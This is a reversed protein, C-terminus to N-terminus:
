CAEVNKFMRKVYRSCIPGCVVHIALANVFIGCSKDMPKLVVQYEKLGM